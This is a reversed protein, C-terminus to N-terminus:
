YRTFEQEIMNHLINLSEVLALLEKLRVELHKEENLHYKDDKLGPSISRLVKSVLESWHYVEHLSKVFQRKLVIVDEGFGVELQM